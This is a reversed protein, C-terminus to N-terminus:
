DILNSYSTMVLKKSYKLKMVRKRFLYYSDFTECWGKQTTKDVINIFYM